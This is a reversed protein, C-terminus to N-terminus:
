KIQSASYGVNYFSIGENNHEYNMDFLLNTLVHQTQLCGKDYSM